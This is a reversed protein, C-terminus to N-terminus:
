QDKLEALLIISPHKVMKVNKNCVSEVGAHLGSPFSASGSGFSQCAGPRVGLVSGISAVEKYTSLLPDWRFFAKGRRSCDDAAVM